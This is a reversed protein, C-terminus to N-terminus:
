AVRPPKLWDAMIGIVEMPVDLVPDPNPQEPEQGPRTMNGAVARTDWMIQVYLRLAVSLEPPPVGPGATYTVVINGFGNPWVPLGIRTVTGAQKNVRYGTSVGTAGGAPVLALPTGDYGYVTVSSIDVVPFTSLVLAETTGLGDFTDTVTVPTLPLCLQQLRSWAADMYDILLDDDNTTTKRLLAKVDQLSTAPSSSPTVTTDVPNV